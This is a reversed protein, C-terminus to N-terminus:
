VFDKLNLGMENELRGKDTQSHALDYLRRDWTYSVLILLVSLGGPPAIVEDM